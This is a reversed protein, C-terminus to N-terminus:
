FFTIGVKGLKSTIYFYIFGQFYFSFVHTCSFSNFLYILVQKRYHYQILWSDSQWSVCCNFRCYNFYLRLSFLMISCFYFAIIFYDDWSRMNNLNVLSLEALILVHAPFSSVACLKLNKKKKLLIYLRINQCKLVFISLCYTYLTSIVIYSM